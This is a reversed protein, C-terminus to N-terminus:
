RVISHRDSAVRVRVICPTLNGGAKSLRDLVQALGESGTWIEDKLEVLGFENGLLVKPEVLGENEGDEGGSGEARRIM